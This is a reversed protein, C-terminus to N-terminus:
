NPRFITNEEIAEQLTPYVRMTAEGNLLFSWEPIVDEENFKYRITTGTKLYGGYEDKSDQLKLVEAYYCHSEGSEGISFLFKNEKPFRFNVQTIFESFVLYRPKTEGELAFGIRFQTFVKSAAIMRGFDLNRDRSISKLFLATTYVAIGMSEDEQNEDMEFYERIILSEPKIAAEKCVQLLEKVNLADRSKCAFLLQM